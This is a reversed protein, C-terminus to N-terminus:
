KNEKQFSKLVFGVLELARLQDRLNTALAQTAPGHNGSLYLTQLLQFTHETSHRLESLAEKLRFETVDASAM